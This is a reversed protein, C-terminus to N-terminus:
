FNFVVGTAFRFNNQHTDLGSFTGPGVLNNGITNLDHGTYLYDFQGLRLAFRKTVNYDIGGGLAMAFASDTVGPLSTTTTGDSLNDTSHLSTRNVGFLAHAYPTFKDSPHASFVPGFLYSYSSLGPLGTIGSGSSASIPTGYNGGIDAKIGFWKNANFQIAGNWGSYNTRVSFTRPTAGLASDLAPGDVGNNGGTHVLSYGGFVQVKSDQAFASAYILFMLSISVIASRLM